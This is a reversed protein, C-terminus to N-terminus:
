GRRVKQYELVIWRCSKVCQPNGGCLDCKIYVNKEPHLRIIAGNANYPCARACAGCAICKDEDIIRAGTKKDIALAGDVPCAYLCDPALCQKCTEITFVGKIPDATVKLRAQTRSAVGEHVLSCVLECTRCSSCLEPHPVIHGSRPLTMKKPLPSKIVSKTLREKMTKIMQTSQAEVM